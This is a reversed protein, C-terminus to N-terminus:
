INWRLNTTIANKATLISFMDNWFFSWFVGVRQLTVLEVAPFDDIFKRTRIDLFM